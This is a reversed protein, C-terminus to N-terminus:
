AAQRRRWQRLGLAGVAMLGLTAVTTPEPVAGTAGANIASDGEDCDTADPFGDGDADPPPKRCAVLAFTLALAVTFRM